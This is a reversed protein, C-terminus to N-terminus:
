KENVSWKSGTHTHAGCENNVQSRDGSVYLYYFSAHQMRGSSSQSHSVSTTWQTFRIYKISKSGRRQETTVSHYCFLLYSRRGPSRSVSERIYTLANRTYICRLEKILLWFLCVAASMQNRTGGGSLKKRTHFDSMSGVAAPAPFFRKQRRVLHFWSHTSSRQPRKGDWMCITEFEYTANYANGSGMSICHTVVMLISKTQANLMSPTRYSSGAGSPM